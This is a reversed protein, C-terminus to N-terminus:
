IASCLPPTSFAVKGFDADIKGKHKAYLELWKRDRDAPKWVLNAPRGGTSPITELRVQLDKANNCGWFFAETGGYWEKNRSTYLKTKATGLEFIAIENKNIDALMWENSYLGNGDKKLLEVAQDINSSYQVAKRIRSALSLGKPDFRTQAIT